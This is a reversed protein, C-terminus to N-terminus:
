DNILRYLFTHPSVRKMEGHGKGSMELYRRAARYRRLAERQLTIGQMDEVSYWKESQTMVALLTSEALNLREADIPALTTKAEIAELRARPVFLSLQNHTM